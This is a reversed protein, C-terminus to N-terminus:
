RGKIWTEVFKATQEGFEVALLEKMSLGRNEEYNGYQKHLWDDLKIVDISVKRTAVWILIDMYQSPNLKPFRKHWERRFVTLMMQREKM